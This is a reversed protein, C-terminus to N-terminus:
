TKMTPIFLQFKMALYNIMLFCVFRDQAAKAKKPRIRKKTNKKINEAKLEDLKITNEHFAELEKDSDNFHLALELRIQELLDVQEVCLKHLLHVAYAQTNAYRQESIPSKKTILSSHLM